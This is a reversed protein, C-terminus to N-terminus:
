EAKAQQQQARQAAQIGGNFLGIFVFMASLVPIIIQAALIVDPNQTYKVIHGPLTQGGFWAVAALVYCRGASWRRVPKFLMLAIYSLVWGAILVGILALVLLVLPSM